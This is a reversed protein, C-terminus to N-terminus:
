VMSGGGMLGVGKMKYMDINGRQTTGSTGINNLLRNDYAEISEEIKLADFRGYLEHCVWLNTM